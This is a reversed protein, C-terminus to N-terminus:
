PRELAHGAVESDRADVSRGAPGALVVTRLDEGGFALKTPTTMFEGTSDDLYIELTGDPMFRPPLM